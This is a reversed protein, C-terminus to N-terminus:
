YSKAYFHGSLVMIGRKHVLFDTYIIHDNSQGEKGTDMRRSKQLPDPQTLGLPSYGM